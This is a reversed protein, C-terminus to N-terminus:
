GSTEEQHSIDLVDGDTCAQIADKSSAQVMEALKKCRNLHAIQCEEWIALSRM